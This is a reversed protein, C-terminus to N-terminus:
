DATVTFTDVGGYDTGLPTGGVVEIGWFVEDSSNSPSHGTPKPCDIVVKVNSGTLTSEAGGYTFATLDYHQKDVVVTGTSSASTMNTGQVYTDISTNCTNSVLTSRNVSGTDSGAAVTGYAISATVDLCLTGIMQVNEAAENTDEDTANASDTAFIAGVWEEAAYAGSDTSDAHFWLNATCTANAVTGSGSSSCTIGTYCYNDNQACTISQGSRFARATINTVDTWSDADTIQGTINVAKTTNEEPSIDAGANLSVNQVSPPQNAPPTYDVVVYVQTLYQAAAVVDTEIGAEMGTIESWTWALGTAPSTTMQCSYTAYSATSNFEACIGLAALDYATGGIVVMHGLDEAATTYRLVLYTTVWNITGSGTPDDLHVTHELNNTTTSDAYTTDGDNTQLNTYNASGGVYTFQNNGATSEGNPYLTETLPADTAIQWQRTEKFLLGAKTELSLFSLGLILVFAVVVTLYKKLKTM